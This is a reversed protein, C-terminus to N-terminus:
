NSGASVGSYGPSFGPIIRKAAAIQDESLFIRALPDELVTLLWRLEMKTLPLLNYLYDGNELIFRSKGEKDVLESNQIYLSLEARVKHIEDQSYYGFAKQSKEKLIEDLNVSTNEKSCGLVAEALVIAYKSFLENFLAGHGETSPVIDGEIM